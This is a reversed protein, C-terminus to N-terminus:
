LPPSLSLGVWSSWKAVAASVTFQVSLADRLYTILTNAKLLAKLFHWILQHLPNYLGSFQIQRSLNILLEKMFLLLITMAARTIPKATRILKYMLLWWRSAISFFYIAAWSTRM